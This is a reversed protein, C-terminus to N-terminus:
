IVIARRKESWYCVQLACGQRKWRALYTCVQLTPGLLHPSVSVEGVLPSFIALLVHSNSSEAPSESSLYLPVHIPLLTMEVCDCTAHHTLM